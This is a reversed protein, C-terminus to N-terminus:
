TTTKLARLINWCNLANKSQSAIRNEGGVINVVSLNNISSLFEVLLQYPQIIAEAGTSTPDMNKWTDQHNLGSVSHIIDGLFHVHVYQQYGLITLIYSLQQKITSINYNNQHIGIHMDPIILHLHDSEYPTNSVLKKFEIKPLLEKLEALQAKFKLDKERNALYFKKYMKTQADVNLGDSKDILYAINKEILPYLEEEKLLEESYKSYPKSDKSLGLRGTIAKFEELSIDLANIIAGSTMDCGKRSFACFVKDLTDRTFKHIDGGYKLEICDEIPETNILIESHGETLIPIDTNPILPEEFVLKMQLADAVSEEPMDDETDEIENIDADLDSEADKVMSIYRRVSRVSLPVNPNAKLFFEALTTYNVDNHNLIFLKLRNKINQLDAKTM